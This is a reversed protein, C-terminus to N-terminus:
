APVPAPSPAAARPSQQLWGSAFTLAWLFNYAGAGLPRTRARAVLRRVTAAHCYDLLPNRPSLVVDNLYDQVGDLAFVAHAPRTFGSKPRYVWEPPIDRVLLQKLLAKKEGNACKVDWPLAASGSVMSPQLFPYFARIGRGRLPDFSKPAMRGACVWVLDLISLRALPEMGESMVEMRTQIAERLQRQVREPTTYAVGELANQSVMAHGPPQHTSRSLLRGARELVSDYQWLRLRRYVQGLWQRIPRPIRYVRQWKQYERSLGFAGDAGTGEVVTHADGTLPLSGHVLINTPIASLDCFPFAYDRGLRELVHGVERPHYPVQHYEFGLHSAIRAALRSEADDLGFSYNVLRVDSRGLGRLRAAMLSSDVGGSFYLVASRPVRVLMADLTEALWQEPPLTAGSPHPRDAGQYVPVCVPAADGRLQLEHGGPIRRVGEYITLSPPVAGYHLLAYVAREDLDANTLRPFLRLDDAFVYGHETRVYCVQQPTALPVAIRVEDSSPSLTLTAANADGPAAVGDSFLLRAAFDAKDARNGDRQAVTDAHELWGLALTRGDNLRRMDIRLEFRLWRAHGTLAQRWSPLGADSGLYASFFMM